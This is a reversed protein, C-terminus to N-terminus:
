DLEYENRWDVGDILEPQNEKILLVNELILVDIGTRMFCRYADSPSNVIPEGRVNFSTNVVVPCGTLDDFQKILSYFDHNTAKDVTQLRASNDVHTVAPIESRVANVIPIMDLDDGDKGVFENLDFKKLKDKKVDAVFLMYPSECDIDFWEGAKEVLVAPAFPRFSERFKIKLNLRSQMEINRSDAVISRAGLARPGFEARGSFFGLIKGDAIMKAADKYLAEKDEYTTYKADFEGLESTIQETTFSAGLYSGKQFDRGTTKRAGNGINYEAYLAAGLAGGADGAAPQVWIHDFIKERLLLGNAVCNLAVGGSLCLSKEGTVKKAQKALLLIVEEAVKQISAALDMERRTITSEGQRPKGGFLSAFQDNTMMGGNFYDFYEMNLAYSGDQRIDILHTRIIDAYIPEGYPALGMLKYEGSNVKFGCFYTFAAYLLGLSDPYNIQALMDLKTNNGHSITTTAWEGVGDITLVAASEFPSPYFASAAHAVHHKVTHLKGSMAFTGMHSEALKNVWLKEGFISSFSGRVYEDLKDRKVKLLNNSWRDLTLFPNDYYVVMDLFEPLIGAEKLCFAIAKEPFRTDHKVRSFREEQTAAIIEGDVCVSAASDHYLGSLGLIKM